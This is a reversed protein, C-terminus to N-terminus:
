FRINEEAIRDVEEISKVVSNLTNLGQEVSSALKSVKTGMEELIRAIEGVGKVAGLVINAGKRPATKLSSPLRAPKHVQM